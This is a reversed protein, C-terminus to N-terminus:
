SVPVSVGDVAQPIYLPLGCDPAWVAGDLELAGGALGNGAAELRGPVKADDDARCAGAFIVEGEEEPLGIMSVQPSRDVPDVGFMAFGRFFRSEFGRAIRRNTFDWSLCAAASSSM